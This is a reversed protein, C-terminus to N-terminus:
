SERLYEPMHKDPVEIGHMDRIKQQFTRWDNLTCPGVSCSDGVCHGDQHVDIGLKSFRGLLIPGNVWVTRGDSDIQYRKAV